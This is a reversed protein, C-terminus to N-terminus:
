IPKKAELVRGRNRSERVRRNMCGYDPDLKSAMAKL